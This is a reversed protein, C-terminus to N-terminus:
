GFAVERVALDVKRLPAHRQREVQNGQREQSQKSPQKVAEGRPQTWIIGLRAAQHLSHVAENVQEDQHSSVHDQDHQM